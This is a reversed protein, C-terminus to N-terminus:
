RGTNLGAWPSRRLLDTAPRHFLSDLNGEEHDGSPPFWMEVKTNVLGGERTLVLADGRIGGRFENVKATTAVGRPTFLAKLLCREAAEVDVSVVWWTRAPASQDRACGFPVSRRV